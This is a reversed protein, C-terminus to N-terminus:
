PSCRRSADARREDEVVGAKVSSTSWVFCNVPQASVAAGIRGAADDDVADFDRRQDDAVIRVRRGPCAVIQVVGALSWTTRPPVAPLSMRMAPSGAVVRDPAVAAVVPEVAAVAVVLEAAAGAVVDDGVDPPSSLMWPPSPLSTMWPPLPTLRIRPPKPLSKMM